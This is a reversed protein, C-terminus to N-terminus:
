VFNNDKFGYSIINSFLEDLSLNIEFICKKPLSFSCGLKELKRCLIDLEALDNKLNFSLMKTEM